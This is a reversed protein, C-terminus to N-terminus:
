GVQPLRLSLRRVRSTKPVRREWAVRAGRRASNRTSIVTRQSAFRLGSIGERVARQAVSGVSPRERKAAQSRPRCFVSSFPSIFFSTVTRDGFESIRRLSASDNSTGSHLPCRSTSTLLLQTATPVSASGSPSVVIESPPGFLVAVEYANSPSSLTGDLRTTTAVTM